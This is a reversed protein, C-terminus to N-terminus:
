AQEATFVKRVLFTAQQLRERARRLEAVEQRLRASEEILSEM